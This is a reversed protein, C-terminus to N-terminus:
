FAGPPICPEAFLKPGIVMQPLRKTRQVFDADPPFSWKVGFKPRGVNPKAPRIGLYLSRNEEYLKELGGGTLVLNAAGSPPVLFRFVQLKSVGPPPNSGRPPDQCFSIISINTENSGPTAKKDFRKVKLSRTLDGEPVPEFRSNVPIEEYIGNVDLGDVQCGFIGVVGYKSQSKLAQNIKSHDILGSESVPGLLDKPSILRLELNSGLEKVFDKREELNELVEGEVPAENDLWIKMAKFLAFAFAKLEPDEVITRLNTSSLLTVGPREGLVLTPAPNKGFIEDYLHNKLAELPPKRSVEEFLACCTLGWREKRDKGVDNM